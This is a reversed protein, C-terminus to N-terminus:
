VAEALGTKQEQVRRRLEPNFYAITGGATEKRALLGEDAMRELQARAENKSIGLRNSLFKTGLQTQQDNVALKKAKRYLEEPDPPAIPEVAQGDAVTDL